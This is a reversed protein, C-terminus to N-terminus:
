STISTKPEDIWSASEVELSVQFGTPDMVIGTTLPFELIRFRLYQVMYLWIKPTYERVYAQFMPRIYPLYM